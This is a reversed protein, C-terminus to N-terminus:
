AQPISYKTVTSNLIYEIDSDPGGYNNQVDGNLALEWMLPALWHDSDPSDMIGKFYPHEASRNPDSLVFTAIKVMAARARKKLNEDKSLNYITIFTSM